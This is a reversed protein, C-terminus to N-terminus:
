KVPKIVSAVMEATLAPNGLLDKGAQLEFAVTERALRGFFNLHDRATPKDYCSWPDLRLLAKMSEYITLRQIKSGADDTIRPFIVAGPTASQIQGSPFLDEPAIRRKSQGMGTLESTPLFQVAAMTDATLAFFRRLGRVEIGRDLENFLLVDDSLYGWGCSALQFTITSKGTGSNGAILIAKDQHPPRVGAGHLLFLGCRRMAAAIAQSILQSLIWSSLDYQKRVWVEIDREGTTGIVVLSGDLELFLAEGNTHCIGDPVDFRDLGAPIHPPEACRIRITCDPTRGNGPGTTLALVELVTAVAAASWQDRSEILLLRGAIEIFM